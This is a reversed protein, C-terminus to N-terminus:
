LVPLRTSSLCTIECLIFLICPAYSCLPSVDLDLERYYLLFYQSFVQLLVGLCLKLPHTTALHLPPHSNGSSAIAHAFASLHSVDYKHM